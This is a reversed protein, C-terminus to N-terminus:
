GVQTLPIVVASGLVVMSTGLLVVVRTAGTGNRLAVIQLPTVPLLWLCTPTISHKPTYLVWPASRQSTVLDLDLCYSLFSILISDKKSGIKKRLM